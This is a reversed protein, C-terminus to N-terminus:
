EESVVHVFLEGDEMDEPVETGYKVGRLADFRQKDAASMLGDNKASANTKEAKQNWNEVQEATIEPMQDLKNKLITTFDETSLGKGEIRDVKNGIAENLADAVEQHAAIYDAIEKLTDYTEPAGNILTNIATQINEEVNEATPITSLSTFIEALAAALTMDKGNYQVSTNEADSKVILERLEGEIKIKELIYKTNAM